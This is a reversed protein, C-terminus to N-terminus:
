RRHQQWWPYNNLLTLSVPSLNIALILSLALWQFETVFILRWHRQCRHYIQWCHRQCRRCNIGPTTSVVSLCETAIIEAFKRFFDSSGLFISLPGPSVSEHFFNLQFERTLSEKIHKYKHTQWLRANDYLLLLHACKNKNTRLDCIRSVKGPAAVM